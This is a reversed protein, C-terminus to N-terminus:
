KSKFRNYHYVVVLGDHSKNSSYIKKKLQNPNKQIFNSSLLNIKKGLRFTSDIDVREFIGYQLYNM